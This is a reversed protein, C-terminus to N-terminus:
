CINVNQRSGENTTESEAHVATDTSMSTQKSNSSRFMALNLMSDIGHRKHFLCQRVRVVQIHEQVYLIPTLALTVVHIELCDTIINDLELFCVALTDALGM